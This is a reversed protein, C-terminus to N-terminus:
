CGPSETWPLRPDQGPAPRDCYARCAEWEVVVTPRVLEGSPVLWQDPLAVTYSPGGEDPRRAGQRGVPTGLLEVPDSTVCSRYAEFRAAEGESTMHVVTTRAHQLTTFPWMATLTSRISARFLPEESALWLLQRDPELQDQVREPSIAFMFDGHATTNRVISRLQRLSNLLPEPLYLDLNQVYIWLIRVRQDGFAAQIAANARAVLVDPDFDRENAQRCAVQDVEAIELPELALVPAGTAESIRAAADVIASQVLGEAEECRAANPIELDFIPLFVLPAEELPPTYVHRFREVEARAGVSRAGLPAGRLPREPRVWVCAVPDPAPSFEADLAAPLGKLRTWAPDAPDPAAGCAGPSVHAEFRRTFPLTAAVTGTNTEAYYRRIPDHLNVQVAHNLDRAEAELLYGELLRRTVTVEQRHGLAPALLAVVEPPRVGPGLVFSVCTTTEGCASRAAESWPLQYTGDATLAVLETGATATRTAFRVHLYLRPDDRVVLQEVSDVRLAAKAAADPDVFTVPACAMVALAAAALGPGLRRM